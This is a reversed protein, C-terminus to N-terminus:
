LHDRRRAMDTAKVKQVQFFALVIDFLEVRLEPVEVQTLLCHLLRLRLEV